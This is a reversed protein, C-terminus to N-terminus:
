VRFIRWGSRSNERMTAIDLSTCYPRNTSTISLFKQVSAAPFLNVLVDFELKRKCKPICVEYIAM